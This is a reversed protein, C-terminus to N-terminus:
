HYCPPFYFNRATFLALVFYLESSSFSSQKSFKKLRKRLHVVVIRKRKKEFGGTEIVVKVTVCM